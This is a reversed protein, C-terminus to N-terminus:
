RYVIYTIMQFEVKCSDMLLCNGFCPFSSAQIILYLSFIDKHSFFIFNNIPYTCSILTWGCKTIRIPCWTQFNSFIDQTSLWDPPNPKWWDFISQYSFQYQHWFQKYMSKNTVLKFYALIREADLSQLFKNSPTRM